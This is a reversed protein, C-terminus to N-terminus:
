IAGPALTSVFEEVTLREERARSKLVKMFGTGYQAAKKERSALLEAGISAAVDRLPAKRVGGRIKEGAPISAAVKRVQPDLFPRDVTKGYRRALDDELPLVESLMKAMDDAMRASAEESTMELYRSYGGFLEDAGQGSMLVEEEVRSAIMQLPLEFSLTIPSQVRVTRLVERCAAIVEDPTMVLATWPLGLFAAAEESMRMDHSGELGVTVLRPAGHKRALAALLGSDLGGSFMIAVAGQAMTGEVAGDLAELLGDPASM